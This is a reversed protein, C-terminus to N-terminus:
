EKRKPSEIEAQCDLCLYLRVRCINAAMLTTAYDHHPMAEYGNPWTVKAFRFELPVLRLHKCKPPTALRSYLTEPMVSGPTFKEKM